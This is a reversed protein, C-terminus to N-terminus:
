NEKSSYKVNAYDIQDGNKLISVNANLGGNNIDNQLANYVKEGYTRIWEKTYEEDQVVKHVLQYLTFEQGSLILQKATLRCDLLFAEGVTMQKKVIKVNKNQKNFKWIKFKEILKKFM